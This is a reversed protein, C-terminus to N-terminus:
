PKEGTTVKLKDPHRHFPTRKGFLRLAQWYIAATVKYTLFPYRVLALRLSRATLPERKLSLTADFCTDGEVLNKFYVNLGDGPESFRWDYIHNMDMFPSVHFAKALRFRHWGGSVEDEDATLVYAFRENWPTNTIDVVITEVREGATDFCYYFSVPNFLYGLQRLHTLVRVPGTPRTGTREAVADRVAADLPVAADGFYDSRRYRIPAPGRISLFRSCGALADLESLDLYFMFLRYEFLNPRPVFRRHQVRGTYLASHKLM